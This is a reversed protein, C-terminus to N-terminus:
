SRPHDDGAQVSRFRARARVGQNFEYHLAGCNLQSVPLWEPDDYCKWKVLYEPRMKSTRTKKSWRLDLIKEVEYEDKQADAEWSDEPLLAADFDDEEDGDVTVTPRKPFLARPKLRSIHVWPNVGYGTSDVKLKVRFDDLVEDIRFPGHVDGIQFGSKLRESLEKWKQTQLDSRYRRAKNQLDEACAKEYGYDRQVNRRWEDATKEPVSSPTPGLMAKLTSQPDWGHILYFPTDSCTADFLTNLTFMLREAHDDWDSQDAQEVYARISRVVTQVSREQQGNAQPRYGLTARQRSTLLERFRPFVESTFRLDQDHRIMSSAGFNRFVREEYAEAVDQATTSDMPKCMVYGSFMDQFLLLFTNGRDSKPIHTVFDMAMVEFPQRTRYGRRHDLM